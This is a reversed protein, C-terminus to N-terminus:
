QRVHGLAAGVVLEVLVRHGVGLVPHPPVADRRRELARVLVGLELLEDGLDAHVGYEAVGVDLREGVCLDATEGDGLGVGPHLLEGVLGLVPELHPQGM